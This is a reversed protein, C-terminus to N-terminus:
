RLTWTLSATSSMMSSAKYDPVMPTAVGSGRWEGWGPTFTTPGTNDAWELLLGKNDPQQDQELFEESLAVPKYIPIKGGFTLDITRAPGTMFNIFEWAEDPHQHVGM